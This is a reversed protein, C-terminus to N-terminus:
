PRRRREPPAPVEIVREPPAFGLSRARRTLQLPDRLKGRALLLEEKRELLMQEKRLVDGKRYRLRLLEVRVASLVLAALVLGLIM